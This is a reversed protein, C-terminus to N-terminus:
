PLAQIFQLFPVMVRLVFVPPFLAFIPLVVVAWAFIRGPWGRILGCAVDLRSRELTM